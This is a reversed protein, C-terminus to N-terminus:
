KHKSVYLLKVSTQRRAPSRAAPDDAADESFGIGFGPSLDPDDSLSTRTPSLARKRRSASIIGSFDDAFSLGVINDVGVAFLVGLFDDKAGADAAAAASAALAARSSFDTVVVVVVVVVVVPDSVTACTLLEVTGPVVVVTVWAM